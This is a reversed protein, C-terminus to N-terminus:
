ALEVNRARFGKNNKEVEFVVKDGVKIRDKMDTVHVFIKKSEKSYIFGYGKSRNYFKLLGTQVEKTVDTKESVFFSKIWQILNM